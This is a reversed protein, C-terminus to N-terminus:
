ATGVPVGVEALAETIAKADPSRFEIAEESRLRVDVSPPNWVVSSSVLIAGQAEALPLDL